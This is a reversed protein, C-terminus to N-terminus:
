DIEEGRFMIVKGGYHQVLDRVTRAIRQDQTIIRSRQTYSDGRALSLARTLNNYFRGSLKKSKFNYLVICILEGPEEDAYREFFQDVLSKRGM